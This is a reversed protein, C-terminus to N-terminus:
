FSLYIGCLRKTSLLVKLKEVETFREERILAYIIIGYAYLSYLRFKIEKAV